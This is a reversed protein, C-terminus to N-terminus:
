NGIVRVEKTVKFENKKFIEVLKKYNEEGDDHPNYYYNYRIEETKLDVKFFYSFIGEMTIRKIAEETDELFHM